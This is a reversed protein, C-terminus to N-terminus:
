REKILFHFKKEMTLFSSFHYDLLSPAMIDIAMELSAFDTVGFLNYIYEKDISIIM